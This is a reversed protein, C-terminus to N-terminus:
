CVSCSLTAPRTTLSPTFSVLDERRIGMQKVAEARRLMHNTQDHVGMLLEAAKTANRHAGDQDQTIWELNLEKLDPDEFLDHRYFESLAKAVRMNASLGVICEDISEILTSVDKVQDAMITDYGSGEKM